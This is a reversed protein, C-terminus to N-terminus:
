IYIYVYMGAISASYVSLVNLLDNFIHAVQKYFGAGASRCTHTNIKLIRAVAKVADPHQLTSVDQAARDMIEAWEANPGALLEAVMDVQVNPDPEANIMYGAAEYFTQKQHAELVGITDHLSACMQQFFSAPEGPQVVCFKKRCKQAIKLFTDCAMDQVGPHTEHMFEFLKLVVTRLFRWHARLFRPYQGM